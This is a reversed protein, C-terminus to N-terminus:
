KGIRFTRMVGFPFRAWRTAVGRRERGWRGAARDAEPGPNAEEPCKICMSDHVRHGRIGTKKGLHFMLMMNEPSMWAAIYRLVANRKFIPSYQM